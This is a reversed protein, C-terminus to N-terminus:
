CVCVCVCEQCKKDLEMQDDVPLKGPHMLGLTFGTLSARSAATVSIRAHTQSIVIVLSHASATDGKNSRFPFLLIETEM